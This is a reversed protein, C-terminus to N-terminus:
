ELSVTNLYLQLKKLFNSSLLCVKKVDVTTNALMKAFTNRVKTYKQFIAFFFIKREVRSMSFITHVKTVGPCLNCWFFSNLTHTADSFPLTCCLVTCIIQTWVRLGFCMQIVNQHYNKVWVIHWPYFISYPKVKWLNWPDHNCLFM